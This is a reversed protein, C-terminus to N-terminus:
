LHSFSVISECFGFLIGYFYEVFKPREPKWIKLTTWSILSICVIYSICVKNKVYGCLFCDLPSLDPSCVPREINQLRARRINPVANDLYQCININRHPMINSSSYIAISFAETTKLAYCLYTYSWKQYLPFYMVWLRLPFYM